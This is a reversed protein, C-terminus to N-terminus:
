VAEALKNEEWLANQYWRKGLYTICGATLLVPNM